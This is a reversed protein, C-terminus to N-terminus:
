GLGRCGGLVYVPSTIELLRPESSFVDVAQSCLQLFCRAVSRMDVAGWNFAPKPRGQGNDRLTHEFYRLGSLMENSKSQQTHKHSPPMHLSCILLPTAM